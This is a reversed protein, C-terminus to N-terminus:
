VMVSCLVVPEAGNGAPRCECEGAARKRMAITFSIAARRRRPPATTETGGPQPYDGDDEGLSVAGEPLVREPPSEEVPTEPPTEPPTAQADPDSQEATEPTPENSQEAM